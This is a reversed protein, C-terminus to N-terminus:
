WLMNIYMPQPMNKLDQSWNNHLSLFCSAALSACLDILLCPLLVHLCRLTVSFYVPCFFFHSMNSFSLLISTTSHDRLLWHPNPSGTHAHFSHVTCGTNKIFVRFFSFKCPELAAFATQPHQKENVPLLLQRVFRSKHGTKSFSLNLLKQM